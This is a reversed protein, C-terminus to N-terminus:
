LQSEKLATNIEKVAATKVSAIQALLEPTFTDDKLFPELTDIKRVYGLHNLIRLMIIYEANIEDAPSATKLFHGAALVTEFLAENKEEGPVLRKLIKLVRVFLLSPADKSGDGTNKIDSKDDAIKEAGVIRWVEKGRVLSFNAFSFDQAHYRLKSQSLRIGQAVGAVMGLDRTFVYIFKGAEGTPFSEVVFGPTTYIHHSM